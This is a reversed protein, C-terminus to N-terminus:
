PYLLRDKRGVVANRYRNRQFHMDSAIIATNEPINPSAGSPPLLRETRGYLRGETILVTSNPGDLPEFVPSDYEPPPCADVLTESRKSYIHSLSILTSVRMEHRGLELNALHSFSSAYRPSGWAKALLKTRDRVERPFDAAIMM